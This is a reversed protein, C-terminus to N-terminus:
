DLGVPVIPNGEPDVFEEAGRRRLGEEFQRFQAVPDLNERPDGALPDTTRTVMGFRQAARPDAGTALLATLMDRRDARLAELVLRIDESERLTADTIRYGYTETMTVLKDALALTRAHEDGIYEALTLNRNDAAGWVALSVLVIALILVLACVALFTIM